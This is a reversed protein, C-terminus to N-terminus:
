EENAKAVRNLFGVIDQPISALKIVGKVDRVLSDVDTSSSRMLTKSVREITKQDQGFSQLTKQIQEVIYNKNFLSNIGDDLKNKTASLDTPKAIRANARQFYETKSIDYTKASIAIIYQEPRAHRIRDFVGFGDTPSISRPAIGNYDLIIIDYHGQECRSILNADVKKAHEIYYGDQKLEKIPLANEEDDILIIRCRTKAKQFDFRHENDSKGLIRGLLNM